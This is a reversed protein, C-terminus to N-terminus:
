PRPGGAPLREWRIPITKLSERFENLETGPTPRVRVYFGEFVNEHLIKFQLTGYSGPLRATDEPWYIGFMLGRKVRGEVKWIQDFELKPSTRETRGYIRDGVHRVKVTAIKEPEGDFPPIIQKWEGTLEGRRSAVFDWLPKLLIGLVAGVLAWFLQGAISTLM